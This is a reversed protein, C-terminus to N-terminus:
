EVIVAAIDKEYRNFLREVSSVDNFTAVLTERTFGPPVGPSDPLGLTAVGSGAKVLLGDSHGHYCGDFKVIKRRGTYPRALPLVARQEGNCFGCSRQTLM